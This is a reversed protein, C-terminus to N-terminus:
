KYYTKITGWSAATVADPHSSVRLCAFGLTHFQRAPPPGSEFFAMQIHYLAGAPVGFRVLSIPGVSEWAGGCDPGGQAVLLVFGGFSTRCRYDDGPGATRGVVEVYLPLYEITLEPFRRVRTKVSITVPGVNRLVPWAIKGHYRNFTAGCGQDELIPISDESCFGPGDADDVCDYLESPEQASAWGAVMLVLIFALKRM